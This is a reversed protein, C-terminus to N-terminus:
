FLSSINIPMNNTYINTVNFMFQDNTPSLQFLPQYVINSENNEVIYESDIGGFAVSGRNGVDESSSSLALGVIQNQISGKVAGEPYVFVKCKDKEVSGLNNM